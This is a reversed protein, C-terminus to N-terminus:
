LVSDKTIEKNFIRIKDDSGCLWKQHSFWINLKEFRVCVSEREREGERSQFIFHSSTVRLKKVCKGKHQISGTSASVSVTGPVGSEFWEGTWSHPLRCRDSPPSIYKYHQSNHLQSILTLIKCDDNFVM